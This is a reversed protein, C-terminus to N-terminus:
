QVLYDTFYISTVGGSDLNNNIEMLLSNKLEESTEVRGVDALTKSRLAIIIVDSMQTKKKRLEKSLKKDQPYELTITVRLYHRGGDGALNVVFDGMKFIETGAAKATDPADAGVPKNFYSFTAGATGAMVLLVILLQLLLKNKKPKAKQGQKVQTESVNNKTPM